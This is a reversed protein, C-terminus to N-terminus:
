EKASLLGKAKEALRIVIGITDRAVVDIDDM